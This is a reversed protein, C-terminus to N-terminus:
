SGEALVRQSQDLQGRDWSPIVFQIWKTPSHNLLNQHSHNQFAPQIIQMEVAKHRAPLAYCRIQCRSLSIPDVMMPRPQPQGM